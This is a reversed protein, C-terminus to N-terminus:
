QEGREVVQLGRLILEVAQRADTTVKLEENEQESLGNALATAFGTAGRSTIEKAVQEPTLMPFAAHHYEDRLERWGNVHHECWPSTFEPRDEGHLIDIVARTAGGFGGLLYLPKNAQLTILAEEAVGPLLGVYGNLKGGM